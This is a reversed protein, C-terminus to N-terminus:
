SRPAPRTRRRRSALHAIAAAIERADGPRGLPIGPRDIGHPDADENGTMAAAIEGPAVANVTIGHPSLDVDLVHTWEDWGLEVFPSSSGTGANNVLVDLRGFADVAQAVLEGAQDFDTVDAGNVIAEGGMAEIEAVVERAPGEDAGEGDSRAGLDNVVVKAGESALMLAHERGIGRGAGTVIAVRGECLGAM